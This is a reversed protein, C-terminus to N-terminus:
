VFIFTATRTNKDWQIQAGLAEMITRMEVMTRNNIIQAPVDLNVQAAGQELQVQITTAGERVTIKRPIVRRSPMDTIAWAEILVPMGLDSRWNVLEYPFYGWGDDGWDTGHSNPTEFMGRQRSYGSFCMGHAGEFFDTIGGAGPKHFIGGPLKRFSSFWNLGVLFGGHRECALEMEEITHVRAYSEIRFNLAETLAEASPTRGDHRDKFRYLIERCIGVKQSVKCVALLTTGDQNPYGDIKKAELYILRPSMRGQREQIRRLYATAFAACWPTEEQSQIEVLGQERASVKNATAKVSARYLDKYLGLDRHDQPSEILGLGKM